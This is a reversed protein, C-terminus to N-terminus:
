QITCCMASDCNSPENRHHLRHPWTIRKAEKVIKHSVSRELNSQIESLWIDAVKVRDIPHLGLRVYDHCMYYFLDSARGSKVMIFEATECAFTQEVSSRWKRKSFFLAIVTRVHVPDDCQPMMISEEHDLVHYMRSPDLNAVLQTFYACYDIEGNYVGRRNSPARPIKYLDRREM